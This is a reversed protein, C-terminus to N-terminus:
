TRSLYTSHGLVRMRLLVGDDSLDGKIYEPSDITDLLLLDNRTMHLYCFTLDTMAIELTYAWLLQRTYPWYARFKTCAVEFLFLCDMVGQKRALSM